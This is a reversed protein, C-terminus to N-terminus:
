ADFIREWGFGGTRMFDRNLYEGEPHRDWINMGVPHDFQFGYRYDFGNDSVITAETGVPVDEVMIRGGAMSKGTYRVRMGVKWVGHGKRYNAIFSGADIFAQAEEDNAFPGFRAGWGGGRGAESHAMYVHPHDDHQIYVLGAAIKEDAEARHKSELEEILTM